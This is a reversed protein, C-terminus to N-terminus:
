EIRFETPKFEGLYRLLDNEPFSDKMDVCVVKRPIGVNVPAGAISQPIEQRLLRSYPIWRLEYPRRRKEKYRQDFMLIDICKGMESTPEEELGHNIFGFLNDELSYRQIGSLVAGPWTAIISVLLVDVEFLRVFGFYDNTINYQNFWLNGVNRRYCEEQVGRACRWCLAPARANHMTYLQKQVNVSIGLLPRESPTGLDKRGFLAFDPSRTLSKLLEVKEPGVVVGEPNYGFQGITFEDSLPAIQDEFWYRFFGEGINGLFLNREM